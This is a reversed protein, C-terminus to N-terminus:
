GSTCPTVKLPTNAGFAVELATTSLSEAAIRAASALGSTASRSAVSPEVARPLVGASNSFNRAWSDSLHVSTMFRALMLTVSHTGLSLRRGLPGLLGVRPRERRLDIAVIRRRLELQRRARGVRMEMEDARLLDKRGLLVVDERM